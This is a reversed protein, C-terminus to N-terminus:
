AVEFYPTCQLLAQWTTGRFHPGSLAQLQADAPLIIFERWREGLVGPMRANRRLADENDIRGNQIWASLRMRRRDVDAMVAAIAERRLAIARECPAIQNIHQHTLSM